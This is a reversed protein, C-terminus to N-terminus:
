RVLNALQQNTSNQFNKFILKGAGEEGLPTKCNREKSFSKKIKKRIRDKPKQM